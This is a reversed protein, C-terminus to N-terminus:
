ESHNMKSHIRREGGRDLIMLLAWQESKSPTFKGMIAHDM